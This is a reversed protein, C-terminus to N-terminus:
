SRTGTLVAPDDPGSYQHDLTLFHGRMNSDSVAAKGRLYAENLALRATDLEDKVLAAAEFDEAAVLARKKAELEACRSDSNTAGTAQDPRPPPASSLLM